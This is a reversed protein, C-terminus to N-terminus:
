KKMTDPAYSLYYLSNIRTAHDGKVTDKPTTPFADCHSDPHFNNILPDLRKYEKHPLRCNVKGTKQSAQMWSLTAGGYPAGTKL